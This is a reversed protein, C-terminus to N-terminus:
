YHGLTFITCQSPRTHSTGRCSPFCTSPPSLSRASSVVGCPLQVMAAQAMRLSISSGTAFVSSDERTGSNAASDPPFAYLVWSFGVHSIMIALRGGERKPRPLSICLSSTAHQSTDCISRDVSHSASRLHAQFSPPQFAM